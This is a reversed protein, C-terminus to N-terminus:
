VPSIIINDDKYTNDSALAVLLDTTFISHSSVLDGITPVDEAPCVIINDDNCAMMGSIILLLLIFRM